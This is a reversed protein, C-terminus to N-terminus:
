APEAPMPEHTGDAKVRVLRSPIQVRQSELPKGPSEIMQTLMDLAVHVIRSISQEVSLYAIAKQSLVQFLNDDYVAPYLHKGIELPTGHLHDMIQEFMDMHGPAFIATPRPRLKLLAKAQWAPDGQILWSDDFGKGHQKLAKILAGTRSRNSEMHTQTPLSVIAVRHHGLRLLERGVRFSDQENASHVVPVGKIVRAEGLLVLPKGRKVVALLQDDPSDAQPLVLMGDVLTLQNFLNSLPQNIDWHNYVVTKGREIIQDQSVLLTRAAFRTDRLMQGYAAFGVLGITKLQPPQETVLTGRGTRAELVGEMVLDRISRAVTVYGVGLASSLQRVPPLRKGRPLKGSTILYRIGDKVQEYVPRESTADIAFHIDVPDLRPSSKRRSENVGVCYRRSQHRAFSNSMM